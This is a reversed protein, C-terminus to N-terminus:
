PKGEWKKAALIETHVPNVVKYDHINLASKETVNAAVIKEIATIKLHKELLPSVKHFSLKNRSVRETAKAEILKIQQKGQKSSILIFDIEVGNQDRYFFLNKGPRSNILQGTQQAAGTKVLEMFVINEWINGRHIHKQWHALTSIDLLHCLLGHDAFYIKPAKVLRKSINAFYPPLLYILGSIELAHIWKKITVDATGVDKSIERYNILQGVRSALIKLLHQFRNLNSINIIQRLDREIYTRIYGDFFLTPDLNPNQWLEPYGGKWIFNHIGPAKSQRLEQASLTELHLVAIRGALSEGVKQMLEFQQSGTLIWKGLCQRDQDVQIKIYRFLDPLYQIEDLIVADQFQALFQSPNTLAAETQSINDFTIYTVKPLMRQLLSSKGTQRAGTLLTVPRQKLAQALQAQQKRAIWM